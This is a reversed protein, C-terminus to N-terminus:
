INISMTALLHKHQLTLHPKLDSAVQVLSSIFYNNHAKICPERVHFYVNSLESLCQAGDKTYPRRTRTVIVLDAPSPPIQDGLKLDGKCGYCRTVKKDCFQLMHLVYGGDAPKPAAPIPMNQEMWHIQSTAKNSSGKRRQTASTKKKGRSKSMGSNALTTANPNVDKSRYRALYAELRGLHQALVVTHSCFKFANWRACTTDCTIEMSSEKYRLRLPQAPQLMNAVLWMSGDACGPTEAVNSAQELLEDAENFITQLIRYPVSVIESEQAGVALNRHHTPLVDSEDAEGQSKLPQSHVRFNYVSPPMHKNLTTASPSSTPQRSTRGVKGWHQQVAHYNTYVHFHYNILTSCRSM